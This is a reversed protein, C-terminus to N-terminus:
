QRRALSLGSALVWGQEALIPWEALIDLHWIVTAFSVAGLLSLVAAVVPATSAPDVVPGTFWSLPIQYKRARRVRQIIARAKLVGLIGWLLGFIALASLVIIGRQNAIAAAAFHAVAFGLQLPILLLEYSAHFRRNFGALERAEIGGMCFYVFFVYGLAFFAIVDAWLTLLVLQNRWNQPNALFSPLRPVCTYLTAALVGFLAWTSAGSKGISARQRDGLRRVFELWLKQQLEEPTRAATALSREVIAGCQPCGLAAESLHTGCHACFM